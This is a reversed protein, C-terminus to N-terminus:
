EAPSTNLGAPDAARVREVLEALQELNLFSKGLTDRLLAPGHLRAALTIDHKEALEVSLAEIRDSPWHQVAAVIERHLLRHPNAPRPPRPPREPPPKPPLQWSKADDHPEPPRKGGRFADFL